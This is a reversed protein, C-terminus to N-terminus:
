RRRSDKKATVVAPAPAPAAKNFFYQQFIGVVNGTLWYLVLGSPASWFMVSFVVPMVMMMTKQSSDTTTSPTMKQVLVQSVLMGLPLIRIPITEPQSLDTVWLWNAGRLEIVTKLVQYFAFFFPMQLLIPVCGGMPNIGHKQYLAMLEENQKQKKPDRMGVGKYKDNLADIQPKLAAMKTMSRMSSYRLPLMLFNIIVTVGIIAWGWNGVLNDYVWHLGLFLPKAIFWFWGWDIIQDLKPDTARLVDLDKPGVFFKLKMDPQGGVAGGVHPIEDGEPKLRYADQWVQFDLATGPEPLVVGAFYADELGAFQFSGAHLVPGNKAVKADEVVLKNSASDFYVAHQQAAENHATRDGFGARWALLHPLGQAGQVVDSTVMLRYAKQEFHFTKRALVNGDSYEFEITLADPQKVTFLAKNLDSAPPTRPFLYSFPWGAKTNGEASTLELPQGNSDKYRYDQGRKQTLKWSRVTAGENSFEVRYVDTQIVKTESAQAQVVPISPVAKAHATAARAAAPQSQTQALAPTPAGAQTPAQGQAQKAGPKPQPHLSPMFYQTAVLVLGMLAFALLMRREMSMEEPKPRSDPNPDTM